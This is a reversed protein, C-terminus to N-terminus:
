EPQLGSQQILDGWKKLESEIHKRFEEHPAYAVLLGQDDALKQFDPSTVATKCAAELKDVVDPPTSAPVAFGIWGILEMDKYGLEEFTPVDPMSPLRKPSMVGLGVLEKARIAGLLPGPSEFLLPVHDGITDTVAQSTGKYPVHMIEIKTRAKLLEQALHSPTGPGASAFSLTEAKAKDLLEPLTKVQLSPNAVLVSPSGGIRCVPEFSKVPDYALSKRLHPNISFASAAALVMTYGDPEAKAAAATGLTAGAGPQNEIVVPVGLVQSFVPALKRAAIDSVGGASLPVIVEIARSPYDDAYSPGALALLAGACVGAALKKAIYTM